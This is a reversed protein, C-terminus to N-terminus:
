SPREQHFSSRIRPRDRLQVLHPFLVDLILRDRETFDRGERDFVFASWEGGSGPLFLKMVYDVDLPQCVEGHLDLRRFARLSILDSFRTARGIPPDPPEIRRAPGGPLPDTERVLPYVSWVREVAAPEDAALSRRYGGVSWVHYSVALAPVLRRLAALVPDPFPEEDLGHALRLVDLVQEYDSGSLRSVLSLYTPRRIAAIM